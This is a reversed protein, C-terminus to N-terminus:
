GEPAIPIWIGLIETPQYGTGFRRIRAEMAGATEGQLELAEAAIKVAEDSRHALIDPVDDRLSPSDRLIAAIETRERRLTGIWGPRPERLFSFELKVLHEVISALSAALRRRDKRALGEIETALNEWDIACLGDPPQGGGNLLAAPVARLAAAQSMAWINFDQEYLKSPQDNPVAQISVV